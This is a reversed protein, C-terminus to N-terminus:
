SSQKHPGTKPVHYYLDQISEANLRHCYRYDNSIRHSDPVPLQKLNQKAKRILEAGPVRYYLDQVPDRPSGAHFFNMANQCREALPLAVPKL